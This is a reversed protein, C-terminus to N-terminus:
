MVAQGTRADFLHLALPDIGLRMRDGRSVDLDSEVRAVLPNGGSKGYVFQHRGVRETSDVSMDISSVGAPPQVTLAEPRIGLVARDVGFARPLDVEVTSARATKGDVTVPILNMPPSGIFGAVFLNDPHDYLDLPGGVQAIAGDSMVAIRDGMTMAEVQDHTVYIFTARLRRHIKQLEVRMHGRLRADVSSLPEDFLFLEPNRVIARGLAVRQQEGGSLESPKRDLCPVLELMDATRSVRWAIESREVGQWILGFAMNEFASLHPYLAYNQFVMSVDRNRTPVDNVVRDGIRIEGETADELGALVRLATSKGCGSPGVIVMFEGDRIELSLDRVALDGSAFRKTVHRFSASAM